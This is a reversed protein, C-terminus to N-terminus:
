RQVTGNIMTLFVVAALEKVGLKVQHCVACFTSNSHGRTTSFSFKQLIEKKSPVGKKSIMDSLYVEQKIIFGQEAWVNQASHASQEVKQWLLSKPGGFQDPDTGSAASVRVM